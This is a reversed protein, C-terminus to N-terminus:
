RAFAFHSRQEIQAAYFDEIVERVVEALEDGRHEDLQIDSGVTRGVACSAAGPM